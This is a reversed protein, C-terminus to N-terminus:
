RQGWVKPSWKYKNLVKQPAGPSAL